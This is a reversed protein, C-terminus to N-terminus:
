EGTEILLVKGRPPRGICSAILQISGASSGEGRGNKRVGKALMVMHGRKRHERRTGIKLHSKMAQAGGQREDTNLNLARATELM